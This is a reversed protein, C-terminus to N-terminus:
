GEMQQDSVSFVHHSCTGVAIGVAEVVIPRVRECPVHVDFGVTPEVALGCRGRDAQHISGDAM